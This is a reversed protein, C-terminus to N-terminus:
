SIKYFVDQDSYCLDSKLDILFDLYDKLVSESPPHPILPFYNLDSQITHKDTVMSSFVTWSGLSPMEIEDDNSHNDVM